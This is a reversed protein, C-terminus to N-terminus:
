PVIISIFNTANNDVLAADSGDVISDGTVDTVLYGGLFNFADNDVMAGDTGDIIGDQNVDGSYIAFRVPTNDVQIMNSGFAQATTTTFDYNMNGGSVYTEGGNKSWTELSNRHKIVIYYIGSPANSFLFNGSFTTSDLNTSSSDIAQYPSASNRLYATIIDPLNIIDLTPNYLGQPIVTININGASLNGILHSTSDTIMVCDGSIWAAVRATLGKKFFNIWHLDLNGAFSSATTHLRMRIIKTGDEASSIVPANSESPIISCALRLTNAFISPNRPRNGIPLDSIDQPDGPAFTYSLIGGNAFSPNYSFGIQIICFKFITSGSNTHKLYIDFELTSSDINTFNKANLTYTPNVANGAKYSSFIITIILIIIKINNM